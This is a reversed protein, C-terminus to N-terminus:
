ESAPIQAYPIFVMVVYCMSDPRIFVPIEESCISAYYYMMCPIQRGPLAALPYRLYQVIAKSSSTTRM